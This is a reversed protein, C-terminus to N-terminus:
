VTKILILFSKLYLSFIQIDVRRYKGMMSVEWSKREKPDNKSLDGLYKLLKGNWQFEVLDRSTKLNFSFPM